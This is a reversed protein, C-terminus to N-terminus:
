LRQVLVGAEYFKPPRCLCRCDNCFPQLCDEKHIEKVEASMSVWSPQLDPISPARHLSRTETSVFTAYLGFHTCGPRRCIFVLVQGAGDEQWVMYDPETSKSFLRTEQLSPMNSQYQYGAELIDVCLVVSYHGVMATRLIEPVPASNDILYDQTAEVPPAALSRLAWDSM